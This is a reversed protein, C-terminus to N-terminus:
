ESVESEANACVIDDLEADICIRYEGKGAEESSTQVKLGRERMGEKVRRVLGEVLYLPLDIGELSVHTENHGMEKHLSIIKCVEDLASALGQVWKIPEPLFGKRISIM